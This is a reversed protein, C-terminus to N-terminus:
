QLFVQVIRASTSPWCAACVQVAGACGWAALSGRLEHTARLVRAAHHRARHRTFRVSSQGTPVCCAGSQHACVVLLAPSGLSCFCCLSAALRACSRSLLAGM